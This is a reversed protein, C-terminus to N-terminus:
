QYEVLLEERPDKDDDSQERIADGMSDFESDETPSEEEPVKEIAYFKKKAIEYLTFNHNCRCKVENELEGPMKTLLKNNKIKINMQLDIATLRKSQRLCWDYPDKDVSYKDNEFSM